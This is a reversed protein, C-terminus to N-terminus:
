WYSPTPLPTSSRPAMARFLTPRRTSSEWNAPPTVAQLDRGFAGEHWTKRSANIEPYGAAHFYRNILERKELWVALEAPTLEPGSTTGTLLDVLYNTSDNGSHHIMEYLARRLEPTDELQGDEMQRHVAVLYFLKIVSAPYIPVEGRHNALPSGAQKGLDVFTVALEEARM